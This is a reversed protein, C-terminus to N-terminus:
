TQQLALAAREVLALGTGPDGGDELTWAAGLGAYATVWQLLRKLDLRAVDAVIAARRMLRAPELAIEATPNRFLNAFEFGREGILGKPDIALWGRDGGDLVNEHHLDGHLVVIDRPGNLLHEAAEASPAFQGGHALNAQELARFWAKLPMLTGPPPRGRPAHLQAATECLIRVAEDDHGAAAMKALNRSGALRELLVANGERALIRAAGAGDYWEMLTAGRQEEEHGAIKLMAPRGERHVPLLWNGARTSIPAGDVVLGWRELWPQFPEPM